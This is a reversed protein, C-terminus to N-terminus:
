WNWMQTHVQQDELKGLVEVYTEPASEENM